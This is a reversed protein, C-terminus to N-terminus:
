IRFTRTVRDGVGVGEESQEFVKVRDFVKVGNIRGEEVEGVGEVKGVL